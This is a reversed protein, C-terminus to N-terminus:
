GAINLSLLFCFIPRQRNTKNSINPINSFKENFHHPILKERLCDQNCFSNAKCNVTEEEYEEKM